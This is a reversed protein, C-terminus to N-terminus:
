AAADIKIEMGDQLKAGYGLRKMDDKEIRPLFGEM